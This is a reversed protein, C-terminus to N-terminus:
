DLKFSLGFLINRGRTSYNPIIIYEKDFLNYASLFLNLNPRKIKHNLQLNFLTYKELFSDSTSTFSGKTASRDGSYQVIINLHTQNFLKIDSITSFAHKPINRLDGAETETFIYNIRNEFIKSFNFNYSLEFGRYIIKKDSNSYQGFQKLNFDFILTPDETRNFYLASFLKSKSQVEFGIEFSLNNEPDLNINGYSPDYLQYLGPAIFAKGYSSFLKLIDNQNLNFSFSPNLSYTLHSGYSEHFNYRLGANFNLGSPDIFVSNFYIDNQFTKPSYDAKMTASQHQIGLITYFKNNFVFKNFFDLNFNTSEASFPFSSQYDRQNKQYGSNLNLSGGSYSYKTNLSFRNLKTLYKFDADEIPFSNDYDSDIDDRNFDIKWSVKSSIKGDLGINFNVKKFSDIEDSVVSSMGDSYREAYAIKFGIGSIGGSLNLLHNGATIENLPRNAIQETGWNKKVFLTLSKEPKITKINIVGTAASSGYLSSAAGKVIEISEIMEINISNIDFDNDIRSPDSVRIGDILILVQRNRGGRISVTPNAGSYLNKGIVDIGLRSSLLVGLGLGSFLQIEDSKIKIVSKGSQSRKLEFRSDIVVVEDLYNTSINLSDLKKDQAFLFCYLPLVLFFIYILKM